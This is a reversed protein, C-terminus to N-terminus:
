TPQSCRTTQTFRSHTSSKRHELHASCAQAVQRILGLVQVTSLAQDTDALALPNCAHQHGLDRNIEALRQQVAGIADGALDQDKMERTWCADSLQSGSAFALALSNCAKCLKQAVPFFDM